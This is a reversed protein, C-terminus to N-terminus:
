LCIRKIRGVRRNVGPPCVSLYVSLCSGNPSNRAASTGKAFTIGPYGVAHRSRYGCVIINIRDSIEGVWM